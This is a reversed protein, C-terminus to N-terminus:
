YTVCNVCQRNEKEGSLSLIENVTKNRDFTKNRVCLKSLIKHLQVVM